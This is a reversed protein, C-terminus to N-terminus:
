TSLLRPTSLLGMPRLQYQYTWGAGTTRWSNPGYWEFGPICNHLQGFANFRNGYATIQLTHQRPTIVGLDVTYPEFAIIGKREDDVAVALVPNKFWPAELILRGGTQPLPCHYTVNGAYFPLGQRTWDGYALQEPLPGSIRAFRGTVTVAFAGLLYCYEVNVQPGYPIELVLENRGRPLIPLQVTEIARDTFWGNTRPPIECGNVFIRTNVANELALATDALEIDTTITFKLRLRHSPKESHNAVWPQAIEANRPPYGLGARLLNDIRLLEEQPQWAEEDLAFEALDLLLVNPESFTVAVPEPLYGVPRLLPKVPIDLEIPTQRTAPELYLLLSDQSYLHYHLVTELGNIRTPCAHTSGDLAHYVTAQWQGKVRIEITEPSFTDLECSPKLNRKQDDPISHCIFLWRAVGDERMQYLFNNTLVGEENQLTLDREVALATLLKSRAFPIQLCKAALRRVQASPTADVLGAPKGMFIVKGGAKQFGELREVTTARLTHCEPVVIADYAMQGVKLPNQVQPCLSPLLSEAIFDFDLQGFLLWETVNKFNRELEQRLDFTQELPGWDLWYSEIPHIVGIRVHPKGRTLATNLRSFYDEVTRYERYWPSQYGICAPYDRKAEGAMSVWTLHHVRVTVGLACQWDGQLKHGKFDFDWNTVGYLESLVGPCGYQHAASQAQKATTYEHRDCLMDIGPLQFSRYSRMAEGLAQTQSELTPEEMLHGTLALGHDACWQGVTDAFATAFRESVHDHYRYRAVSIQGGPLEWFLEPLSDLFETGYVARYTDPFDDTYPLSVCRAETAFRLAEKKSFQPEDTFIAPITRGFDAQFHRYYQEHTVAIFKQIAERDLTNVYAQHNYRPNDPFIEVYAWWLKMGPASTGDVTLRRYSQLYGNRLEVQYQALFYGKRATQDVAAQWFEAASGAYEDPLAVPSLLLRRARFRREKTVLGGAFGSPWRDEDYLWCLMQKAKAKDKCARVLEMFEAGLYPTAMGARPHIHFGGMGMAQLQDIQPLLIEPDLRCNWAWFPTGRYEATPNQFLSDALRATSNKPYLLM